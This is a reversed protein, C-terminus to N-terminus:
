RETPLRDVSDVLFEVAGSQMSYFLTATLGSSCASSNLFLYRCSCTPARWKRHLRFYTKIMAIKGVPRVRAFLVNHETHGNTTCIGNKNGLAVVRVVSLFCKLDRAPPKRIRIVAHTKDGAPMTQM